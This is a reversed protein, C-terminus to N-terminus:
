GNPIRWAKIALDNDKFALGDESPSVINFGTSIGLLYSKEKYVVIDGNRVYPVDINELGKDKCAKITAKLLTSGGYAKITKKADKEDKWKLSKPIVREGTMSEVASDSFVCCDWVGWEFPKNRHKDIFESLLQEWNGFKKM